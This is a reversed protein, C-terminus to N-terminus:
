FRQAFRWFGDTHVSGEVLSPALTLVSKMVESANGGGVVHVKTGSPVDRIMEKFVDDAARYGILCIDSAKSLYDRGREIVTEYFGEIRQYLKATLPMFLAPYFFQSSLVNCANGFGHISGDRPSFVRVDQINLPSAGYMGITATLLNVDANPSTESGKSRVRILWNVSGHPKIYHGASYDEISRLANGFIYVFAMDLLTDYNFSILSFEEDKAKLRTLFDSYANVGSFANLYTFSIQQLLAWLYFTVRGFFAMEGSKSTPQKLGDVAEWRQTLWKELSGCAKVAVQCEKFEVPSLPSCYNMLSDDFLGDILPARLNPNRDAALCGYSAGAGFIFTKM